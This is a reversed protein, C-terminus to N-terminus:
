RVSGDLGNYFAKAGTALHPKLVQVSHTKLFQHIPDQPNKLDALQRAGTPCAECCATTLGKTIRHYCLTCKQATHRTPHIFRCGYPCAQVCYRCGLCYKEDILVVGDPTVFTAGVPCVQTCPSDACHNCMKPVFFDKGANEAVVPFGHKGGDPSEVKPNEIHWDDVHYHEVWTRFYGEPVDNEQACARVCNGCGICKTIDILMGWWHETLKYNPSGEPAGSLVHEWAVAAAGTLSIFHRRTLNGTLNM